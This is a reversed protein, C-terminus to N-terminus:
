SSTMEGNSIEDIVNGVQGRLKSVGKDRRILFYGCMDVDLLRGKFVKQIYLRQEHKHGGDCYAQDKLWWFQKRQINEM